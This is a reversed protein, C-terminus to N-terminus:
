RVVRPETEMARKSPVGALPAPTFHVDPAEGVKASPAILLPPIAAAGAMLSIANERSGRHSVARLAQFASPEIVPLSDAGLGALPTPVPYDSAVTASARDAGLAPLAYRPASLSAPFARDCGGLQNATAAPCM